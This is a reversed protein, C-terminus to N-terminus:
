RSQPVPLGLLLSLSPVLDIQQVQKRSFIGGEGHEFLPSLFVLPTSTEPLSAGGHSGADSMGHDGCLVLLSPAENEQDWSLMAKYLREMINDMELLKPEILPSSPGAIHGIHDLGLFHLIM